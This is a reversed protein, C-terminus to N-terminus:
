KTGIRWYPDTFFEFRGCSLEFAKDFRNRCWYFKTDAKELRWFFVLPGIQLEYAYFGKRAIM